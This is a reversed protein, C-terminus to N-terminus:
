RDRVAPKTGPLKFYASKKCLLPVRQDGWAMSMAGGTFYHTTFLDPKAGAGNAHRTEISTAQDATKEISVTRTAAAHVSCATAILSVLLATRPFRHKM